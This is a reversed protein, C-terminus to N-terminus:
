AAERADIMVGISVVLRAALSTWRNSALKWFLDLWVRLAQQM